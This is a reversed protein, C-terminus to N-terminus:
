LARKLIPVEFEKQAFFVKKKEEQEKEVFFSIKSKKKTERNLDFFCWDFTSAKAEILFYPNLLDTDLDRHSIGMDKESLLHSPKVIFDIEFRGNFEEDLGKERFCVNSMVNWANVNFIQNLSHETEEEFIIGKELLVKKLFEHKKGSLDFVNEKRLLM